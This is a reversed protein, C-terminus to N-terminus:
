DGKNSVSKTMSIFYFTCPVKVFELEYGMKILMLMMAYTSHSHLIMEGPMSTHAACATEVSIKGLSFKVTQMWYLDSSIAKHM